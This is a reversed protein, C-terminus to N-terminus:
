AVVIPLGAPAATVRRDHFVPLVPYANERAADELDAVMGLRLLQRGAASLTFPREWRTGYRRVLDVAVLAADNLGKRRRRGELAELVLRGATYADDLGFSSDKGACLIVLDRQGQLLERARAGALALNAAAALYVESASQSALLARTGNTTTMAVTKGRVTAETMERPSNGLTFGAIRESNQEGATIVDTAGLTQVLRMAEEATAVPVVGRAGHHLAACITTTARLVDVVFVPRGAVEAPLLGAPSFIVDLKM